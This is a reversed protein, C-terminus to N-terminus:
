KHKFMTGLLSWKTAVQNTVCLYRRSAKCVKIAIYFQNTPKNQTYNADIVYSHPNEM